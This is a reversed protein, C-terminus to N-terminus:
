AEAAEDGGLLVAAVDDVAECVPVQGPEDHFAQVVGVVFDGAFGGVVSGCRTWHQGPSLGIWIPAAFRWPCRGPYTEYWGKCSWYLDRASGLVM